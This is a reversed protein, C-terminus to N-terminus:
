LLEIFDFAIQYNGHKSKYLTLTDERFRVKVRTVSDVPVYWLAGAGGRRNRYLEVIRDKDDETARKWKLRFVRTKTDVVARRLIMGFEFSSKLVNYDQEEIFEFEPQLDFVPYDNGGAEELYAYRGDDKEEESIVLLNIQSM